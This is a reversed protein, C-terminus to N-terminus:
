LDPPTTPTPGRLSLQHCHPPSPPIAEGTCKDPGCPFHQVQSPHLLRSSATAIHTLILRVTLVHIGSCSCFISSVFLIKGRTEGERGVSYGCEVCMCVQQLQRSSMRPLTSSSRPSNPMQMAKGPLGGNRVPARLSRSKGGRSMHSPMGAFTYFSGPGYSTSLSPSIDDSDSQSYQLAM